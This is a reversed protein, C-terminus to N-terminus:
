ESIAPNLGDFIDTLKGGVYVGAPGREDAFHAGEWYNYTDSPGAGVARFEFGDRGPVDVYGMGTASPLAEESTDQFL